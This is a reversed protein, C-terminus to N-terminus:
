DKGRHQHHRERGARLAMGTRDRDIEANEIGQASGCVDRLQQLWANSRQHHGVGALWRLAREPLRGLRLRPRIGGRNGALDHQLRRGLHFPSCGGPARCGFRSGSRGGSLGHNLPRARRHRRLNGRSRNCRWFCRRDRRRRRGATHGRRNCRRGGCRRRRGGRNARRRTLFGHGLRNRWGRFLGRGQRRLGSRAAGEGRTLLKAQCKTGALSGYLIGCTGLEVIDRFREFSILRKAELKQGIGAPSRLRRALGAPQRQRARKRHPRMKDFLTDPARPDVDAGQTVFRLAARGVTDINDDGGSLRALNRSSM